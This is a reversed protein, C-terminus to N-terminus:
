KEAVGEMDSPIVNTRGEDYLGDAISDIQNSLLSLLVEELNATGTFKREIIM